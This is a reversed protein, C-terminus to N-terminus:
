IIGRIDNVMIVVFLVMLLVFGVLHVMGEKEPDVPKGSIAEYGLFVLRGGDLAPIPLLNMIGLNISILASFEFLRIIGSRAADGIFQAIRVPGSLDGAIQGTLMGWLGIIIGYIMMGTQEIGLWIAKFVNVDERNLVPIIGIVGRDQNQDFEPVVTTDFAQEGRQVKFELEEGVNEGIIASLQDWNEVSEGNIALVKDGDRLGARYAPGEPMVQGLLSTPSTSTPVGFIIFILSFLLAALFFNMLPGMIIVWFREWVSKQFLCKQKDLAEKYAKIDESDAEENDIPMEGTMACFGGLPFARISYLTEGYRKWILKPGMGIAFEEVQVGVKKAIMFHGLEHFFVLIGLVVIFSIITVLM